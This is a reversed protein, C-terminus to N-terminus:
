ITVTEKRLFRPRDPDLGEARAAREVAAYFAAIQGLGVTLPHTEAPEPVLRALRVVAAGQRDLQALADATGTDSADGFALIGAEADILTAPGHLVEAASYGDAARGLVERIKLGAELALGLHPGRGVATLRRPSSLLADLPAADAGLAAALAEPQARLARLLAADGSWHAVLWLGALVTSVFSKTAAVAEEPGALVDIVASGERGLPSDPRNTLVVLRAGGSRLMRGLAALDASAGSQSLAFAATGPVRLAAGYVSAVSPGVSAVPLSLSLEAAYKLVTAAHDSSGRAATLVVPPALDRLRAAEARLVAQAPEAALRAAAEPIEAIERELRSPAATM